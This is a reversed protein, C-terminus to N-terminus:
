CCARARKKILYTVSMCCDDDDDDDDDLLSQRNTLLEPTSTEFNRFLWNIIILIAYESMNVCMFQFPSCCICEVKIYIMKLNRLILLQLEVFGSQMNVGHRYVSHSLAAHLSILYCWVSTNEYLILFVPWSVPSKCKRWARVRYLFIENARGCRDARWLKWSCELFWVFVWPKGLPCLSGMRSSSRAPSVGFSEGGEAQRVKPGQGRPKSGAAKGVEGRGGVHFGGV